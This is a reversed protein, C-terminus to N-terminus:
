DVIELRCQFPRWLSFSVSLFPDGFAEPQPNLARNPPTESVGSSRLWPNSDLGGVWIAQIPTVFQVAEPAWKPETMRQKGLLQLRKQSHTKLTAAESPTPCSAGHIKSTWAGSENQLCRPGGKQPGSGELPPGKAKELGKPTWRRGICARM